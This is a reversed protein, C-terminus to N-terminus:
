PFSTSCAPAACASMAAWPRLVAVKEWQDAVRIAFMLYIGIAGAVLAPVPQNTAATVVVGAVICAIGIAAGIGSIPMKEGKEFGEQRGSKTMRYIM